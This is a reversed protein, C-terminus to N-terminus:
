PLIIGSETRQEQERPEDATERFDERWYSHMSDIILRSVVPNKGVPSQGALARAIIWAWRAKEEDNTLKLMMAQEEFFRLFLQRKAGVCLSGGASEIVERSREAQVEPPIVLLPSDLAKLKEHWPALEERGFLLWSPDMDALLLDVQVEPFSREPHEIDDLLDYAYPKTDPERYREFINRARELHAYSGKGTRLELMDFFLRAAHPLPVEAGRASGLASLQQLYEKYMKQAASEAVRVNFSSFDDEFFATVLAYSGASTDPVM